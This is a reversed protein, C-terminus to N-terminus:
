RQKPPYKEALEKQIREEEKRVDDMTMDKWEDELQLVEQHGQIFIKRIFREIDGIYRKGLFTMHFDVQLRKFITMVKGGKQEWGVPYKGTLDKLEKGPGPVALQVDRFLDLVECSEAAPLNEFPDVAPRYDPFFMTDIRATFKKESLAGSTYMTLCKPFANYSVETMTLSGSPAVARFIGPVKNAFDLLKVTFQCDGLVEHTAPKNELVSVRMGGNAERMSVCCTTHLHGINYEDLSYPMYIVYLTTKQPM